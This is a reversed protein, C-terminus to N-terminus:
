PKKEAEAKVEPTFLAQGVNPRASVLYAKGSFKSVRYTFVQGPAKAYTLVDVIPTQMAYFSGQDTIVVYYETESMPNVVQSINVLKEQKPGMMAMDILPFGIAVVIMLIAIVVLLEIATFGKRKM